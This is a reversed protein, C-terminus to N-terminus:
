KPRDLHRDFWSLKEKVRELHPLQHGVEYLLCRKDEGTAGIWNVFPKQSTEVLTIAIMAVM